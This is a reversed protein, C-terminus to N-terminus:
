GSRAGPFCNIKATILYRARTQELVDMIRDSLALREELSKTAKWQKRLAEFEAKLARFQEDEM